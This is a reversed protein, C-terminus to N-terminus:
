CMISHNKKKKKFSIQNDGTLLSFTSSICESHFKKPITPFRIHQESIDESLQEQNLERCTNVTEPHGDEQCATLLHLGSSGWNFFLNPQYKFFFIRMKNRSVTKKKEGNIYGWTENQLTTKPLSKELLEEYVNPRKLVEQYPNCGSYM